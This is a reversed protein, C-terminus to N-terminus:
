LKHAETVRMIFSLWKPPSGEQGQKSGHGQDRRLWRSGVTWAAPDSYDLYGCFKFTFCVENRLKKINAAQSNGAVRLVGYLRANYTWLGHVIAGKFGMQRGAEPIVHLPNTDGKLRYLLATEEATVLSYSLDPQIKSPTFVPPSPGSFYLHQTLERGVWCKPTRVKLVVEDAKDLTFTTKLSEPICTM